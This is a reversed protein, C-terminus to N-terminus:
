NHFGGKKQWKKASFVLPFLTRTNSTQPNIPNKTSYNKHKQITLWSTVIIHYSTGKLRAM